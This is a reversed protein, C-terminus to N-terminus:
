RFTTAFRITQVTDELAKKAVGISNNFTLNCICICLSGLRRWYLPGTSQALFITRVWPTSPRQVAKGALRTYLLLKKQSKPEKSTLKEEVGKKRARTVNVDAKAFAVPGSANM